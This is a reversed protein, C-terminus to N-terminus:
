HASARCGGIVAVAGFGAKLATERAETVPRFDERVDLRDLSRLWNAPTTVRNLYRLHDDVDAIAGRL